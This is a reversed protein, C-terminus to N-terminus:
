RNVKIEYDEVWYVLSMALEKKSIGLSKLVKELDKIEVSSGGEIRYIIKPEVESMKALEEQKLNNKMRKAFVIIGLVDSLSPEGMEKYNLEILDKM